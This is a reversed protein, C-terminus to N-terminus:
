LKEDTNNALTMLLKLTNPMRCVCQERTRVLFYHTLQSYLADVNFIEDNKM